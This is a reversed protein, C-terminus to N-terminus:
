SYLTRDRVNLNINSLEDVNVWEEGAGDDKLVRAFHPGGLEGKIELVTGTGWLHEEGWATVIYDVEITEDHANRISRVSSTV